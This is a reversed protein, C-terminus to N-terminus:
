EFETIIDAIRSSFMPKNLEFAGDLDDDKWEHAVYGFLKKPPLGAISSPKDSLWFYLYESAELKSLRAVTEEVVEPAFDREDRLHKEIEALSHRPPIPGYFRKYKGAAAEIRQTAYELAWQGDTDRRSCSLVTAFCFLLSISLSLRCAKIKLIM